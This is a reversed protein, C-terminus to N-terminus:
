PISIGCNLWEGASSCTSKRKTKVTLSAAIFMQMWTKIYAYTKMERTYISLASGADYQINGGAVYSHDKKEGKSPDATTVIKLKLWDSLHKNLNRTLLNRSYIGRAFCFIFGTCFHDPSIPLLPSFHFLFVQSTIHRDPKICNLPVGFFSLGLICSKVMSM